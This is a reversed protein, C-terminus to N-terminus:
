NLDNNIAQADEMPSTRYSHKHQTFCGDVARHPTTDINYFDLLKKFLLTSTTAKEANEMLIRMSDAEKCSDNNMAM